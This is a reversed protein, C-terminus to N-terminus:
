SGGTRFAFEQLKGRTKLNQEPTDASFALNFAHKYVHVFRCHTAVCENSCYEKDWDDSEVAPNSCGTRVCVSGVAVVDSSGNVEMDEQFATPLAADAHSCYQTETCQNPIM